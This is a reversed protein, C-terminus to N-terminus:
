TVLHRHEPAEQGATPATPPRRVLTAIWRRTDAPDIVDDIEFHAAMNLAKGTSTRPAVMAEFASAREGPDEIAELEKRMGLRVAGELGM